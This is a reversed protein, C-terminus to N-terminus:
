KEREELLRMNGSLKANRQELRSVREMNKNSTNDIKDLKREIKGQTEENRHLDKAVGRFSNQLRNLEVGDNKRAETLNALETKLFYLEGTFNTTVEELKKELRGIGELKASMEALITTLPDPATESNDSNYQSESM